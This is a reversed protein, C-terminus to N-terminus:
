KPTYKAMLDWRSWMDRNKKGFIYMPVSTLIMAASIGGLTYFVTQAGSTTVWDNIFNSFGYFLLNKSFSSWVFVETAIDPFADSLYSSGAANSVCVGIAAVGYLAAGVVYGRETGISWGFLFYGLPATALALMFAPLRFEPEYIGGNRRALRMAIKDDLWFMIGCGLIAGVFPGAFLYGVGSPNLLYPPPFYIQALTFSIAVWFATIMSQTAVVFWTAPNLLVLMLRALMVLARKPETYTGSFPALSQLYTKPNYVPATSPTISLVEEHAANIKEDMHETNLQVTIQANRPSNFTTEPAFFVVMLFVIVAFILYIYLNWHWGLNNTIQGAILPSLNSIGTLVIIVGSIWTGREHTFFLDVITVFAISEFASAALGTVLRGARLTSYSGSSFSAICIITAVVSMLTAFLYQSRKGYIRSLISVAISWCGSVLLSEGTLLSIASIPVHLDAAIVVTGASLLPGAVAASLIGALLITTITTYKKTQSWNLPDNPDDSPQPNLIIHSYKGSGHKLVSVDLGIDVGTNAALDDLVVTGRVDRGHGSELIGLPM